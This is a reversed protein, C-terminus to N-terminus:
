CSRQPSDHRPARYAWPCRWRQATGRTMLRTIAWRVLPPAVAAVDLEWLKRQGPAVLDLKGDYLLALEVRRSVDAVDV